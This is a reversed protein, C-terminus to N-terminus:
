AAARLQVIETRISGYLALCAAEALNHSYYFKFTTKAHEPFLQRALDVSANKNTKLLGLEAKWVSPMTYVSDVGCLSICCEIAGASKLYGSVTGAGMATANEIYAIDCPNVKLWDQLWFWNIRKGDPFTPIEATTILRPNKGGKAYGYLALAASSLGVDCGLVTRIM